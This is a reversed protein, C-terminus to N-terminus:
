EYDGEQMDQHDQHDKVADLVKELDKLDIGYKDVFEQVALRMKIEDYSLYASYTMKSGITQCTVTEAKWKNLSKKNSLVQPPYDVIRVTLNLDSM